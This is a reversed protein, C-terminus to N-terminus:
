VTNFKVHHPLFFYFNILYFYFSHHYHTQIIIVLQLVITLLLSWASNDSLKLSSNLYSYMNELRVLYLMLFDINHDSVFTFCFM